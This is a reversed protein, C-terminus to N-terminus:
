VSDATDFHELRRIITLLINFLFKESHDIKRMNRDEFTSTQFSDFMHHCQACMDAVAIDSVKTATGKGLRHSRLGVYHCAVVTGDRIGCNVCSQGKAAKLWAESRFTTM